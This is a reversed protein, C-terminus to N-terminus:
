NQMKLMMQQLSIWLTVLVANTLPCNCMQEVVMSEKLEKAWLHEAISVPHMLDDDINDEEEEYLEEDVSGFM